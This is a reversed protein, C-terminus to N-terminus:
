NTPNERHAYSPTSIAKELSWGRALRKAVLSHGGGLRRSIQSICEGNIKNNNSKNQSQQKPTAWRTNEPTYNDNNDIRDISLGQPAEGMDSLFYEFSDKWRDCVRIGRGGYNHYQATNSNYCRTKMARWIRWTRTFRKGHKTNREALKSRRACGCSTSVGSKLNKINVNREVGCVCRCLPKQKDEENVVVWQGFKRSM